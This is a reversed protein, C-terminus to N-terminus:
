QNLKDAMSLLKDVHHELYEDESDAFGNEHMYKAFFRSLGDFNRGYFAADLYKIFPESMELDHASRYLWKDHPPYKNELFHALKLAARIGDSFMVSATLEDNRKLCREYNYQACRSYTTVCAAIKKLLIDKPYGASLENRIGTFVGEPDTFMMGNVSDSLACEPIVEYDEKQLPWKGLIDKYFKDIVFVGRREHCSVSCECKYGRFERPMDNYARKLKDGILKYTEETVFVCFGPGWDHDKSEEDDYGYCESGRGVLGVAIKSKYQAFEGELLPKFFARYYELSLQMGNMKDHISILADKIRYYFENRGLNAEMIVLAENLAERAKAGDKKEILCLGYVYLAAGYHSDTAEIHRFLEIAQSSESFASEYDCLGIYANALNAHTVATEFLEGSTKCIELARELCAVAQSILGSESYLLAKKNYFGAFLMSDPALSNVYIEEVKNYLDLADNLRSGARYVSAINLLSTAYPISGELGMDKCLLLIRKAIDYAADFRGGDRLFGIYENLTDLLTGDDGEDIAKKIAELYGQEM